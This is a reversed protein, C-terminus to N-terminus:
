EEGFPKRCYARHAEHAKTQTADFECQALYQEALRRNDFLFHDNYGNLRTVNCDLLCFMPFLDGKRKYVMTGNIFTHSTLTYQTMWSYAGLGHVYYVKVPRDALIDHFHELSKITGKPRNALTAPM